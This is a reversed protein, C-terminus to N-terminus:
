IIHNMQNKKTHMYAENNRNTPIIIPIREVINIGLQELQLLKDPNNSMLKIDRINFYKLIQSAETYDRLDADFGLALNASVTDYGKEILEYAKLKNLLGIGRGEQPLYIIIGGHEQIYRMAYDLQEGCDCRESHFVDGTLCESHLRVNTQNSIEGSTLAIYEQDNIKSCFAHMEFKGYKTPLNVTSALEVNIEHEKRYQVIQDITIMKLDHEKKFQFLDDRRAMTGDDKMIECIVGAPKCGVLKALDVCAETHGIRELVGNDKAILPFVHGPRVFDDKSSSEILGKITETREFASIGTTSNIHDISITFATQFKDETQSMLNLEFKEAIDNTIPACILGRAKQAMFNVTDATLYETIAILDGENERDEDDVVIVPKGLKLDKFAEELKDFM